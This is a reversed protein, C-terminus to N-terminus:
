FHLTKASRVLDEEAVSNEKMRGRPYRPPTFFSTLTSAKAPSTNLGAKHPSHYRSPGREICVNPSLPSLQFEDYGDNSPPGCPKPTSPTHVSRIGTPTGPASFLLRKCTDSIYRRPRSSPTPQRNSEVTSSSDSISSADSSHGSVFPNQPLAYGTNSPHQDFSRWSLTDSDRRPERIVDLETTARLHLPSHPPADQHRPKRTLAGVSDDDQSVASLWDEVPYVPSGSGALSRAHDLVIYGSDDSWSESPTESPTTPRRELPCSQERTSPSAVRSINPLQPYLVLGDGDSARNAVSAGQFIQTMRFTHGPRPPSRLLMASQQYRRRGINANANSLRPTQPPSSQTALRSAQSVQQRPVSVHDDQAHQILASRFPRVPTSPAHTTTREVYDIGTQPELRLDADTEQSHKM